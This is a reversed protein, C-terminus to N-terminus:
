ATRKAQIRKEIAEVWCKEAIGFNEKIYERLIRNRTNLQIENNYIANELRRVQEFLPKFSPNSRSLKYLSDKIPKLQIRLSHNDNSIGVSIRYLQKLHEPQNRHTQVDRHIQEAHNILRVSTNVVDNLVQTNINLKRECIVRRIQIADSDVKNVAHTGMESAANRAAYQRQSTDSWSQKVPVPPNRTPVRPTNSSSSSSGRKGADDSLVALIVAIVLIVLLVIFITKM